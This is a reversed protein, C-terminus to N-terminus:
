VQKLFDQFASLSDDDGEDNPDNQDRTRVDPEPKIGYQDMLERDAYIPAHSRLAAAIADSPRCDIRVEGGEKDRVVLEAYFTAAKMDTIEAYLIRSGLAKVTSLILDHTQPRSIEIGQLSLVIAEAEFQGIFLPLSLDGDKEKLLIIRHQNILSVRLSDVLIETKQSM